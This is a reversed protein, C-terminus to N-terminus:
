PQWINAELVCVVVVVVPVERAEDRGRASWYRVSFDVSFGGSFAPKRFRRRAGTEGALSISFTM